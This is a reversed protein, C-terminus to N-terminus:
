KPVGQQRSIIQALSKVPIKRVKTPAYNLSPERIQDSSADRQGEAHGSPYTAASDLSEAVDEHFKSDRDSLTTSSYLFLEKALRQSFDGVAVQLVNAFKVAVALNLPNTGNFYQNVAGQTIGLDDAVSYQSFKKGDARLEKQRKEFLSKLAECERRQEDTLEKKKTSKSMTAIINGITIM